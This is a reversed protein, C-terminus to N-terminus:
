VLHFNIGSSVLQEALSSGISGTAGFVIYKESM